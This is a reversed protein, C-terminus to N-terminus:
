LQALLWNGGDRVNRSVEANIGTHEPTPHSLFTTSDQVESCVLWQATFSGGLDLQQL